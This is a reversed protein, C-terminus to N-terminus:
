RVSQETPHAGHLPAPWDSPRDYRRRTNARQKLSPENRLTTLLTRGGQIRRTPAGSGEAFEGALVWYNYADRMAIPPSQHSETYTSHPEHLYNASRAGRDRHNEHRHDFRGERCRRIRGPRRRRRVRHHRRIFSWGPDGANRPAGRHPPHAGRRRGALDAPETRRHRGTWREAPTPNGGVLVLRRRLATSWCSVQIPGLSSMPKEKSAPATQPSSTSAPVADQFQQVRLCQRREQRARIM